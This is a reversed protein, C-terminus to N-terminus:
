SPRVFSSVIAKSYCNIADEYKRTAFFKNGLDKLELDSLNTKSM